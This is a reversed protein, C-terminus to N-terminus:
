VLTKLGALWDLDREPNVRGSFQLRKFTTRCRANFVSNRRQAILCEAIRAHKAPNDDLSPGLLEALGPFCQESWIALREGQLDFIEILGREVQWVFTPVM